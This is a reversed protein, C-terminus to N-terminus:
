KEVKVTCYKVLNVRTLNEESPHNKRPEEQASFIMQAPSGASTKGFSPHRATSDFGPSGDLVSDVLGRQVRHWVVSCGLLGREVGSHM